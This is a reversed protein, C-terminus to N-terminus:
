HTDFVLYPVLVDHQRHMRWLIATKDAIIQEVDNLYCTCIWSKQFPPVCVKLSYVLSMQREFTVIVDYNKMMCWSEITKQRNKNTKFDRGDLRPYLIKMNVLVGGCQVNDAHRWGGESFKFFVGVRPCECAGTVSILADGNCGQGQFQGHSTMWM